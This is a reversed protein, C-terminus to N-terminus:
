IKWTLSVLCRFQALTCRHKTREFYNRERGGSTVRLYIQPFLNLIHFARFSRHLFRQQWLRSPIMMPYQRDFLIKEVYLPPSNGFWKAAIGVLNTQKGM